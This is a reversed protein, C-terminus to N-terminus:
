KKSVFSKDNLYFDDIDILEYEALSKKIKM